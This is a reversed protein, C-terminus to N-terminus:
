ILKLNNVESKYTVPVTCLNRNIVATFLTKKDQKTISTELQSPPVCRLQDAAVKLYIDM